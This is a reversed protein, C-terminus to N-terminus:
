GANARRVTRAGWGSWIAHLGSLTIPEFGRKVMYAIITELRMLYFYTGVFTRVYPSAGPILEMTHFTMNLVTMGSDCASDVVSKLQDATAMSPRLWRYKSWGNFPWWPRLGLVTVPVELIEQAWYPQMPYGTYDPGGQGSWDVHPTVSTDVTYGLDRLTSLTKENMGYRGARYSRPLTGFAREYLSTVSELREGEEAMNCPFADGIHLHTGIEAGANREARLVELCEESALVEPTALYVPRVSFRNWISRLEPIADLVSCFRGTLPGWRNRFFPCARDGETDITVTFWKSSKM